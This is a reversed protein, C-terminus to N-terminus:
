RHAEETHHKGHAREQEDRQVAINYAVQDLRLECGRLILVAEDLRQDPRCM